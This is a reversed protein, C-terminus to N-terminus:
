KQLSHLRRVSCLKRALMGGLVACADIPLYHCAAADFLIKSASPFDDDGQWYTVALPLRPLAQFLYACEGLELCSGGCFECARRFADVDLGFTKVLLDGSYGQFATAYMRGDPLDAFSVWRGTLPAGDATVLYYLLLAQVFTPLSKGDAGEVAQLSPWALEVPQGFLALRLVGNKYVAGSKAALADPARNQLTLRLEEARRALAAQQAAQREDTM